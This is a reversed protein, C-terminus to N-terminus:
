SRSFMPDRVQWCCRHISIRDTQQQYFLISVYRPVGLSWTMSRSDWTETRTFGDNTSSFFTFKSKEQLRVRSKKIFFKRVRVVLESLVFVYLVRASYMCCEYLTSSHTTCSRLSEECWRAQGSRRFLSPTLVSTPLINQGSRVSWSRLLALAYKM